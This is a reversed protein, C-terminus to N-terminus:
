RLTSRGRSGLPFGTNFLGEGPGIPDTSDIIIVDYRSTTNKVFEVGDQFYLHVKPNTLDKSLFPMYKKSMDVVEQDIEVM